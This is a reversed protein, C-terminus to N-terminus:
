ETCDCFGTVLSAELKEKETLHLTPLLPAACTIGQSGLVNIPESPLWKKRCDKHGSARPFLLLQKKFPQLSKPPFRFPVLLAVASWKDFNAYWERTKTNCFKMQRQFFFGNVTFVTRVRKSDAPVARVNGTAKSGACFTWTDIHHIKSFHGM